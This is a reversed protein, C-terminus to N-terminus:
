PHETAKVAPPVPEPDSEGGGPVSKYQGRM